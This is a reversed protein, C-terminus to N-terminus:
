RGTPSGPPYPGRKCNICVNSNALSDVLDFQEQSLIQELRYWGNPWNADPGEYQASGVNLFPAAIVLPAQQAPTYWIVTDIM